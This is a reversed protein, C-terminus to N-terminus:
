RDIFINGMCAFVGSTKGVIDLGLQDIIRVFSGGSVIYVEKNAMWNLFQKSFKNDVRSKAPTLTGDVDFSINQEGVTELITPRWSDFVFSICM